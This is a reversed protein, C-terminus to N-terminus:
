TAMRLARRRRLSWVFLVLLAGIFADSTNAIIDSGSAFRQPLFLAQALEFGGPAVAVIPM